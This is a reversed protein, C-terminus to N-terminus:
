LESESKVIVRWPKILTWTFVNWRCVGASLFSLLTEDYYIMFLANVYLRDHVPDITCQYRSFLYGCHISKYICFCMNLQWVCVCRWFSVYVSMKHFGNMIQLNMINLLWQRLIQFIDIFGCRMECKGTSFRFRDVATAERQREIM